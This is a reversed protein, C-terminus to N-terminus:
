AMLYLDSITNSDIGDHVTQVFIRSRVVVVVVFVVVSGNQGRSVIKSVFYCPNQFGLCCCLLDRCPQCKQIYVLM